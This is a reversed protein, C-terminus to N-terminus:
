HQHDDPEPVRDALRWLQEAGVRAEVGAFLEADSCSAPEPLRRPDVVVHGRLACAGAHPMTHMAPAWGIEFVRALDTRLAGGCRLCATSDGHDIRALTVLPDRGGHESRTSRWWSADFRYGVGVPTSPLLGEQELWRAALYYAPAMKGKGERSELMLSPSGFHPDVLWAHALRERSAGALRFLRHGLVVRTLRDAFVFLVNGLKRWPDVAVDCVKVRDCSLRGDARQWVSILKVEIRGEWDPEPRTDHVDLGLHWQLANGHRGRGRAEILHEAAPGLPVGRAAEALLELHACRRLPADGSPPPHRLPLRV